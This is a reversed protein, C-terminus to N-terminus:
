QSFSWMEHIEAVEEKITAEKNTRKIVKANNAKNHPHNNHIPNTKTTPPPRDVTTALDKDETTTSVHKSLLSPSVMVAMVAM